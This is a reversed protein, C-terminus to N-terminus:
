VRNLSDVPPAGPRKRCGHRVHFDGEGGADDAELLEDLFALAPDPPVVSRGEFAAEFRRILPTSDTVPVVGDGEPLYFTPLLPVKAGPLKAAERSNQLIFVYPIRRYRLLSRMKRSYPSGPAGMMQLPTPLSM